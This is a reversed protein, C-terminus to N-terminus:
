FIQLEKAINRTFSQTAFEDELGPLIDFFIVKVGFGSLRKQLKGMNGYYYNRFTKGLLEDGSIKKEKGFETKVENSAIFLRNM